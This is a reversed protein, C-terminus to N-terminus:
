WADRASGRRTIEPRGPPSGGRESSFLPKAGIEQEEESWGLVSQVPSAVFPSSEGSVLRQEERDGDSGGVQELAEGEEAVSDLAAEDELFPITPTPFQEEPKSYIQYRWGRQEHNEAGGARGEEEEYEDEYDSDVRPLTPEPYELEEFVFPEALRNPYWFRLPDAGRLARELFLAEAFLGMDFLLSIM